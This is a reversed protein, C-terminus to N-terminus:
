PSVAPVVGAAFSAPIVVRIVSVIAGIVATVATVAGIIASVAPRRPSAQSSVAAPVAVDIGHSRLPWAAPKARPRSHRGTGVVAAGCRGLWRPPM